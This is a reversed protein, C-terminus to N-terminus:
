TLCYKSLTVTCCQHAKGYGSCYLLSVQIWETIEENTKRQQLLNKLEETPDLRRESQGITM